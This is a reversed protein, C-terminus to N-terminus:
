TQCLKTHTLLQLYQCQQTCQTWDCISFFLYLCICYKLIQTPPHIRLNLKYYWLRLSHDKHSKGPPGTTIYWGELEPSMPKMGPQPVLIDCDTSCSLRCASGVCCLQQPQANQLGLTVILSAQPSCHLGLAALPFFFLIIKTICYKIGEVALPQQLFLPCNSKMMYPLLM